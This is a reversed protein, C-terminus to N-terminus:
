RKEWMKFIFGNGGARLWHTLITQLSPVDHSAIETWGICPTNGKLIYIREHPKM